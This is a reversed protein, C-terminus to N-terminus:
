KLFSLAGPKMSIKVKSSPALKNTVGDVHYHKGGWSVKVAQTRHVSFPPTQEKGHLTNMLFEGLAERENERITVVDFLGDRPDAQPALQLSPGALPTNMIEVMLYEGSLTQGDMEIICEQSRYRHLIRLQHKLADELEEERSDQSDRDRRQRFLNPFLGFGSSELFFREKKDVSTIGVDFHHIKEVDWKSIIQKATGSINLSTAINNATGFPLVAIPTENGVHKKAIKGVTGDGGAVVLVDGPNGLTKKLTEKDPDAYRAQFGHSRMLRILTEPSDKEFGANENHILTAHVPM